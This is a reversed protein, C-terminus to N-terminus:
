SFKWVLMAAIASCDALLWIVPFVVSVYKDREIEGILYGAVGFLIYLVIDM